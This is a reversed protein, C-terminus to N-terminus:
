HSINHRSFRWWHRVKFWHSTSINSFWFRAKAEQYKSWEPDKQGWEQQHGRAEHEPCVESWGPQDAQLSFYKSKELFSLDPFNQCQGIASYTTKARRDAHLPVHHRHPDPLHHHQQEGSLHQEANAPVEASFFIIFICSLLHYNIPPLHNM